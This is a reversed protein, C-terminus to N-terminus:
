VVVKEDEWVPGWVILAVALSLLATVLSPWIVIVIWAPNIILTVHLLLLGPVAPLGTVHLAVVLPPVPVTVM